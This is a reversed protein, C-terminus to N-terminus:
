FLRTESFKKSAYNTLMVLIFAIISQMLSVAAGLSYNPFGQPAFAVRYVYSQIVEATERVSPNYMLLIKDLDVTFINGISVIFMVVVTTSISPLTIYFMKKWRGAGDLDAAEYLSPDIATMAALYVIAYYGFTQWVHLITYLPRFWGPEAMFFISDMGLSQLIMNILGGQPSLLTYLISVMVAASIFYPFFSLTQVTRKLLKMRVENLFLGFLIPVIFGFVLTYLALLLTNKVLVLMYPDKLFSAFHDLGVWSSKFVGLFPSYDQFAIVLGFLPAIKFLVLHLLGPILILYLLRADWIDKVLLRLKGHKAKASPQKITM